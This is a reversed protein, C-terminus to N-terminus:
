APEIQDTKTPTANLAQRLNGNHQNLINAGQAADVHHRLMIIAPKVSFGTSKLAHEAAAQDCATISQVIRAARQRLKQNSARVDIMFGGYTKGAMIMITSSLCNLAIKQTTGASLRTSGSIVEPGSDIEVAIDVLAAIPSALNNVICGTLAGARRAAHIAGEVFNTRGSAAIGVLTDGRHIGYAALQQAAAAQDDEAGEIAHLMAGPGGALLPIIIHDPLNFTPGCEVADLLALRGSTGAGAYFLRGGGAIRAGAAEALRALSPASRALAAQAAREQALLTEIIASAPWIDLDDLGAQMAETAPLAPGRLTLPPGSPADHTQANHLRGGVWVQRITFDDGWWILDARQGPAIRGHDALGLAEAPAATAAHLAAHPAIGARILRRIGEDLFIGAGAITGDPRRGLGDPAAIVPAGGFEGEAGPPLGAILISDTVAIARRGAAAFALKMAIPDAHLGDSIVCPFLRPDTLAVGVPGPDRHHFPRQATFVHTVLRAGAAAAAQMTAADADTHGLAVAIGRGRLHRIAALAGPLEPALTILTLCAALHPDALLEDLAASSPEALWAAQHAGRRVPSLFPGELHLGIIQAVPAGQLSSQAAAIRAAAQHLAPIPATIITPTFATVGRAALDAALTHCQAISATAVDIGLAGNNHIDILGPSIFGDALVLAGPATEDTIAVIRGAEIRICAPGTFGGDIFLRPAQIM